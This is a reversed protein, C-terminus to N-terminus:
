YLSNIYEILNETLQNIGNFDMSKIYFAEIEDHIDKARNLSHSAEDLLDSCAKKNFLLRQKKHHLLNKDYFRMFNIPKSDEITISNIPNSSILAIKLQPILLHEYTKNNLLTCQSVIVDYGRSNIITALDRLFIDSGSFYIDNLTFIQTYDKLTDFLTTYGKPTLASLQAFTTKGEIDKKKKMIKKAFRETFGELKKYLIAEQSITYTDTYLSSLASVFNRCRKHWRQNENTVDIINETNEKLLNDDWFDGLNIIKQSVGPYVPDFVHPATGDVIIVKAKKLYVADLSNPDSACYFVTIDDKEEFESVIKKMLSSKGTGAGGKLIYTFVKEKSILEGFNTVFGDPSVGGLFYESKALSM